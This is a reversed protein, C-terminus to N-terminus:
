PCHGCVPRKLENYHTLGTYTMWATPLCFAALVLVPCVAEILKKM